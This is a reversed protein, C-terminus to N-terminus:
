RVGSISREREPESRYNILHDAGLTHARELKANSLFTIIVTASMAKTIQLAFTSVGGTGLALVTDSAKLGGEVVLARWATLGATTLTAAEAHSYGSPAHTFWNAPRV